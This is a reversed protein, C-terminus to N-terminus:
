SYSVCEWSSWKSAVEGQTGHMEWATEGKLLERVNSYIWIFNWKIIALGLSPWIYCFYRPNKYKEILYNFVPHVLRYTKLTKNVISDTATTAFSINEGVWANTNHTRIGVSAHIGADKIQTAMRLYRGQSQSVAHELLGALQRYSGSKWILESPFRGSPRIWWRLLLLFYSM